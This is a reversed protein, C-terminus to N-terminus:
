VLSMFLVMLYHFSICFYSLVSPHQSFFSVADSIIWCQYKL